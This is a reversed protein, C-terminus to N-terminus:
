KTKLESKVYRLTEKPYLLYLFFKLDEKNFEKLCFLVGLYILLGVLAFVLLHYWRTVPILLNSCYLIGGMVIGALIHRPTHNQLFNIQTYKKALWRLGFFGFLSSALMAIAAGTIGNIGFYSLVGWKPILLCNLFINIICTLFGIKATIGPKDIGSLLSSYPMTLGSILVYVMLTILVSTAPLFAGNFMINIVQNAFIIIVVVVPTVVMSIYREALHITERIRQFYKLSYYESFTPLLVTCVATPFVIAIQLVQQVSFYYGVEKATWFYGIMIKDVNVSIVGIISVLMMPFAFSFYSKGLKWSPKKWPYKRLFYIGAFVTAVASFVYTIALSGVAHTAIFQQLPQFMPPWNIAPSVSAKGVIIVGALAVLVTLPVKILTGISRAIERKAIEKTGEFTSIAIQQINLFVYYFIFVIVVSETTADYFKRNLVNKWVFIAAFIVATMLMTLFIKITAYTSICVGIDEGESIRKVHARTFGMDAIFNFLALFSMAFGIIGLAEPAFGGWLKTLVVLGIWGLLLTFFQSIVIVFSKRAIM